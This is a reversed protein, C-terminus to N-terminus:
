AKAAAAASPGHEFSSIVGPAERPAGPDEDVDNAATHRPTLPEGAVSAQAHALLEGFLQAAQEAKTTAQSFDGRGGARQAEKCASVAADQKRLRELRETEFAINRQAANISRKSM